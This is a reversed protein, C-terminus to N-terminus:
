EPSPFNSSSLPIHQCSCLQTWYSPLTWLRPAQRSAPPHLLPDWCDKGPLSAVLGPSLAQPPLMGAKLTSGGLLTPPGGVWGTLSGSPKWSGWAQFDSM